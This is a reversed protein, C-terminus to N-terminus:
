AHLSIISFLSLISSTFNGHLRNFLNGHAAFRYLFLKEEKSNYYALLPLLNPHKQDAIAKVQRLFEESSLPKLDRLRKVVVPPGVEMMAKYCNGFNGKGLGEASAKLLDDLEFRTVDDDDVFVLKGKVGEFIRKERVREVIRSDHEEDKPLIDKSKMEKRLDKYKKYYIIFLFLIVVIVVVDVGILIATFWSGNNKKDTNKNNSESVDQIATCTTPPGCLNKNGFYSSINFYDLTRTPPIEGSLHNNSVNFTKLSLQDFAPISGTLNNNQLQLSELSNLNLLSTPINGHFNNSSLDIIRLNQNDAFDMLSGSLSNNRFSLTSLETLNVIANEKFEGTLEMSELILGTVRGSLCQIGYWYPVTDMYCMIGTWNHNLFSNNFGEKLALLADREYGHFGSSGDQAAARKHLVLLTTFLLLKYFSFSSM